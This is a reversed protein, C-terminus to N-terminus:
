TGAGSFASRAAMANKDRYHLMTTVVAFLLLNVCAFVFPIFRRNGLNRVLGVTVDGAAPDPTAAPPTEGDAVTAHQAKVVTVAALLKPNKLEVTTAVRHWAQKISSREIIPDCPEKGGYYFVDKVIYAAVPANDPYIKQAVLQADAAATADGRRPDSETLLCWGNLPGDIKERLEVSQRRVEDVLRQGGDAITAAVQPDDALLAAADTRAKRALPELDASHAIVWPQVVTKLKTLTAPHYEKGESGLAM